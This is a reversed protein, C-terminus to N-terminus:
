GSISLVEDLLINFVIIRKSFFAHFEIQFLFLAKFLLLTIFWLSCSTSFLSKGCKKNRQTFIDNSRIIEM